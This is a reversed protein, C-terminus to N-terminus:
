EYEAIRRCNENTCGSRGCRCVNGSLRTELLEGNKTTIMTKKLSNKNIGSDDHYTQSGGSRYRYRSGRFVSGGGSRRSTRLRRMRRIKQCRILSTFLRKYGLKVEDLRVTYIIPDAISNLLLLNTLYGDLLGLTGGISELKSKDIKFQIILSVQFLCQPLWCIMFTMLILLTTILARNSQRRLSSSYQLSRHSRMSNNNNNKRSFAEDFSSQEGPIRHRRVTFYIRGYAYVMVVTAIAAIAFITYQEKYLTIDVVECFNYKGKWRNYVSAGSFFDSFGCLLAVIWLAFILSNSRHKNMLQPYHLPQTIAVFHDIAMGMLNLLCMNLSSTTMARITIDSCYYLYRGSIPGMGQRYRWNVILHFIHMSATFGILTDSIALSKMFRFHTTVRGRTNSLALLTLLNLIVAIIGLTLSMAIHPQSLWFKARYSIGYYNFNSYTEENTNGSGNLDMTYNSLNVVGVFTSNTLTTNWQSTPLMKFVINDFLAKETPRTAERVILSFKGDQIKSDTETAISFHIICM